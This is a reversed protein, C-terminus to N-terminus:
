KDAPWVVFLRTLALMLGIMAIIAMCRALSWRQGACARPGAPKARSGAVGGGIAGLSDSCTPDHVMFRGGVVILVVGVYFAPESVVARWIAVERATGQIAPDMMTGFGYLMFILVAGCAALSLGGFMCLRRM